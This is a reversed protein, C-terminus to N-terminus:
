RSCLEITVKKILKQLIEKFIQGARLELAAKNVRLNVYLFKISKSYKTPVRYLHM